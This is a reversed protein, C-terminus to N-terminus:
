AWSTYWSFMFVEFFHYKLTKVKLDYVLQTLPDYFESIYWQICIHEALTRASSSFRLFNSTDNLGM